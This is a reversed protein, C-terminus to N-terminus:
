PRGTHFDVAETKPSTKRSTKLTEKHMRHELNTCFVDINQRGGSALRASCFPSLAFYLFVGPRGELQTFGARAEM